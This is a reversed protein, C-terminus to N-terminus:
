RYDVMKKLERGVKFFPVKKSSVYVKTGTKPNRGMRSERSRVMFVGFDRIEIRDGKVLAGRM